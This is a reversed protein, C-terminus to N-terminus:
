PAVIVDIFLQAFVLVKGPLVVKSYQAKIYIRFWSIQLAINDFDCFFTLPIMELHCPYWSDRSLLIVM